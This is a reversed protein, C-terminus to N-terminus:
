RDHPRDVGRRRAPRGGGRRRRRPRGVGVAHREGAEVVLGGGLDADLGGDRVLALGVGRGEPGSPKTSYGWEFVKREDEGSVGPGTDAVVIEWGEHTEALDVEVERPEPADAVADMANDVLNSVVSVLEVESLPIGSWEGEIKLGLDIRREEAETKKGALLATVGPLQKYNGWHM